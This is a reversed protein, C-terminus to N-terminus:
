LERLVEVVRLTGLQRASLVTSIFMGVVVFGGIALLEMAPWALDNAPTTFLVNLLMILLRALVIGIVAGLVLSVSAILSAEVFLFRRLQGLNAGLARMAGFERRRENMMALLFVALGVSTVIITYLREM